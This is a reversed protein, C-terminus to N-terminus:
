ATAEAKVGLLRYAGPKLRDLVYIDNTIKAEQVLGIIYCSLEQALQRADRRPIDGSEMADRLTSEFYRCKREGIQQAMQRISEDQTSLECGISVFPCGLLRGYKNLQEAQSRRVHEFYEELRELPPRQASFIRDLNGRIQNWHYEYAAVTLESKSRFFHYFSGKKVGSQECIHDVGVSGYSQRWILEHATELLRLKSDCQKM